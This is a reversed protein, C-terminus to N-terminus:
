SEKVVFGREFGGKETRITEIVDEVDGPTMGHKLAINTALEWVAALRLIMEEETQAEALERAEEALKDALLKTTLPAVDFPPHSGHQAAQAPVFDRVLQVDSDPM